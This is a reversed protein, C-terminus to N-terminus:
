FEFNQCVGQLKMYLQGSQLLLVSVACAPIISSVSRLSSYLVSVVCVPIISSVSRLSSYYFQCQASQFLLVSVAYVPIISSVSHLSSYYHRVSRLSSYYFQCQASQFLLSQCQASQFLLAQCQASQFLPVSVAYVPIISRVSRLSSYYHRVSRLSSYYFQCQVDSKAMKRKRKQVHNRPTCAFSLAFQFRGLLVALACSLFYSVAYDQVESSKNIAFIGICLCCFLCSFTSLSMHDNLYTM